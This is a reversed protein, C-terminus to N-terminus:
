QDEFFKRTIVWVDQKNRHYTATLKEAADWAADMIVPPSAGGLGGNLSMDIISYFTMYYNASGAYYPVSFLYYENESGPKLFSIVQMTRLDSFQTAMVIHNKNYTYWGNSYFLLNGNTDSMTVCGRFTDDWIKGNYVPVPYGSSYNIGALVGFYWNETRRIDQSSLNLFILLSPILILNRLIM